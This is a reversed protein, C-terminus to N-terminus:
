KKITANSNGGLHLDLILLHVVKRNFIMKYIELVESVKPFKNFHSKVLGGPRVVNSSILTCQNM